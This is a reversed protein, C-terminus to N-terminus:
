QALTAVAGTLSGIMAIALAVQSVVFTRSLRAFGAAMEARLRFELVELDKKTAFAELDKKTALSFWDLPPMHDMLFEAAEEGL